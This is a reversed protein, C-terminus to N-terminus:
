GAAAVSGSGSGGEGSRAPAAANVKSGSSSRGVGDDRRLEFEFSCWGCALRDDADDGDDSADVECGEEREDDGDNRDKLAAPTAANRCM